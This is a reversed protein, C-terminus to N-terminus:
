SLRVGNHRIRHKILCWAMFVYQLLPCVAGRLRLWPVLHLHDGEHGLRKVELTFAGTGMPYLARHAGFSTLVRHRLSFIGDSGWGGGGCV